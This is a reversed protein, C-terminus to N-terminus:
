IVTNKLEEPFLEINIAIEPTILSGQNMLLFVEQLRHATAKTVIEIIKIAIRPHRDRLVDFDPKFFGLLSTDSVCRASAYRDTESALSLTGFSEPSSIVLSENSGEYDESVEAVLEIKGDEIFYMGNGPDGQHYVYDGANFKRRHCYSLFRYRESPGLPALFPSRILLSTKNRVDTIGLNKLM